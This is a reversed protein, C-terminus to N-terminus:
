LIFNSLDETIENSWVQDHRRTVKTNVKTTWNDEAWGFIAEPAQDNLNSSNKLCIKQPSLGM